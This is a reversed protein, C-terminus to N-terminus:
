SVFVHRSNISAGSFPELYTKRSGEMAARYMMMDKACALGQCVVKWGQMFNDFDPLVKGDCLGKPGAGALTSIAIGTPDPHRHAMLVINYDTQAMVFKYLTSQISNIRDILDNLATVLKNGKPIPELQDARANGAILEIPPISIIREHKSNYTDIGTVLKLGERGIIRTHDAKLVAASKGQPMGTHGEPIGFQEDVDCMASLYMRAADKEANPNVPQEPIPLKKDAVSWSYLGAYIDVAAGIGGITGYGNGYKFKQRENIRDTGIRIGSGYPGLYVEEGFPPYKLQPVMQPNPTGDIGKYYREEEPSLNNSTRSKPIKEKNRIKGM